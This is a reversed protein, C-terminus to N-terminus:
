LLTCWYIYIYIHVNHNYWFNLQLKQSLGLTCYKFKKECKQQHSMISAVTNALVYVRLVTCYIHLLILLCCYDWIVLTDWEEEIIRSWGRVACLPVNMLRVTDTDPITKVSIDLPSTIDFCSMCPIDNALPPSFTYINGTITISNQWKIVQLCDKLYGTVHLSRVLLRFLDHSTTFVDWYQNTSLM